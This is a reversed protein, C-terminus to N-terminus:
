GAPPPEPAPGEALGVTKLPPAAPTGDARHRPLRGSETVVQTMPVDHYDFPFHEASIQCDFALGIFPIRGRIERLFNDYYGKGRGLRGGTADFAVGPCLVADLDSRLFNNRLNEQPELIGFAGPATQSLATIEAIGLDLSSPRCFPVVVRKGKALLAEILPATDVEDEMSLYAMVARAHAIEDMGLLTERIVASKAKKEEAPLNRRAAAFTKRLAKKREATVAYGKSEASPDASQAIDNLERRVKDSYRRVKGVLLGAERLFRPLEKSGFFLLVLVAIVAIESFGLGMNM